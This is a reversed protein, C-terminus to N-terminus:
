LSSPASTCSCTPPDAPHVPRDSTFYMVLENRTLVAYMDNCETNISVVNEPQSWTVDGQAATRQSADETGQSTADGTCALSCCALSWLIARVMSFPRGSVHDM